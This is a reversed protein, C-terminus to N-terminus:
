DGHQLMGYISYFAHQRFANRACVELSQVATAMAVPNTAIQTPADYIGEDNVSAKSGCALKAIGAIAVVLCAVGVVLVLM